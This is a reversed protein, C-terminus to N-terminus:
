GVWHGTGLSSGSCLGYSVLCYLAVPCASSARRPLHSGSPLRHREVVRRVVGSTAGVDTVTLDLHRCSQNRSLDKEKAAPLCGRTHGSMNPVSCKDGVGQEISQLQTPDFGM